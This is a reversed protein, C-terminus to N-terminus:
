RQMGMLYHKIADANTDQQGATSSPDTDQNLQYPGGYDPAQNAPAFPNTAASGYPAPNPQPGLQPAPPQRPPMLPQPGAGPLQLPSAQLQSTPPQFMPGPPPVVPPQPVHTLQPMGPAANAQGSGFMSMLQQILAHPDMPQPMPGQSFGGGQLHEIGPTGEPVGLGAFSRDFDMQPQYTPQPPPPMSRGPLQSPPQQMTQLATAASGPMQNPPPPSPAPLGQQQLRQLFAQLQDGQITGGNFDM